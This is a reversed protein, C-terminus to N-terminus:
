FPFILSKCFYPLTGRSMEWWLRPWPFYWPWIGLSLLIGTALNLYQFDLLSVSFYSPFYTALLAEQLRWLYKWLQHHWNQAIHQLYPATIKHCHNFHWPTCQCFESLLSPQNMHGPYWLYFWRYVPSLSFRAGGYIWYLLWVEKSSFCIPCHRFIVDAVFISAIWTHDAPIICIARIFVGLLQLHCFHLWLPGYQFIADDCFILLVDGIYM